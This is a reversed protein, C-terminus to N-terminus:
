VPEEKRAERRQTFGTKKKAESRSLETLSIAEGETKGGSYSPFM